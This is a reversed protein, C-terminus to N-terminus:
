LPPPGFPSPVICEAMIRGFAERWVPDSNAAVLYIKTDLGSRCIKKGLIIQASNAKEVSQFLWYRRAAPMGGDPSIMQLTSPDLTVIAEPALRQVLWEPIQGGCGMMVFPRASILKECDEPTIDKADAPFELLRWGAAAQRYAIRRCMWSLAPSTRYDFLALTGFQQPRGAVMRLPRGPGKEELDQIDWRAVGQRAYNIRLRWEGAALLLGYLLISCVVGGGVRLRQGRWFRWVLWVGGACSCIWILWRGSYNQHLDNFFACIAVYFCVAPVADVLRLLFQRVLAIREAPADGPHSAVASELLGAAPVSLGLWFFLSSWISAACVVSLLSSLPNRILRSQEYTVPIDYRLGAQEAFSGGTWGDHLRVEAARILGAEM